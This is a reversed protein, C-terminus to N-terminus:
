TGNRAEKRKREVIECHDEKTCLKCWGNVIDCYRPEKNSKICKEM